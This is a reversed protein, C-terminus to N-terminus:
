ASDPVVADGGVDDTVGLRDILEIVLGQLRCRLSRSMPGYEFDRGTVGFVRLRAPLSHLRRALEIADAIGLGHTSLGISGTLHAPDLEVLEGV